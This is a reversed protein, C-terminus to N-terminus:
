RNFNKEGKDDVNYNSKKKKFPKKAGTNQNNNKQNSRNNTKTNKFDKNFESADRTPGFERRYRKVKSFNSQSTVRFQDLIEERDACASCIWEADVTPNRHKFREVDPQILQCVECFNREQQHLESKKREKKPGLNERMNQTKTSNLGAKLLADKLSSM